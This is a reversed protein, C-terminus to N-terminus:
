SLEACVDIIQDAELIEQVVLNGETDFEDVTRGHDVLYIGAALSSPPGGIFLADNRVVVRASGDARSTINVVSDYRREYEEGTSVNTYRTLTHFIVRELINGHRDETIFVYTVTGEFDEVLVDFDCTFESDAPITFSELDLSTRVRREDIPTAAAAVPGALAILFASALLISVVRRM